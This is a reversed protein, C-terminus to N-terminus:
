QKWDVVEKTELKLLVFSFWQLTWARDSGAKTKSIDEIRELGSWGFKCLTRPWCSPTECPVESRYRERGPGKEAATENRFEQSITDTHFFFVRAERFACILSSFRWEACSLNWGTARPFLALWATKHPIIATQDRGLLGDLASNLLSCPSQGSGVLQTENTALLM